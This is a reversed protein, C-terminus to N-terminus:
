SCTSSSSSTSARPEQAAAVPGQLLERVEDSSTDYSTGFTANYDAIATELFDRSRATSRM